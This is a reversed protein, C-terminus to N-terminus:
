RRKYDKFDKRLVALPSKLGQRTCLIAIDGEVDKVNLVDYVLGTPIHEIKLGRKIVIKKNADKGFFPDISENKNKISQIINEIDNKKFVKM